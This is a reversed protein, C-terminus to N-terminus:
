LKLSSEEKKAIQCSCVGKSSTSFNGKNLSNSNSKSGSKCGCDSKGCGCSNQTSFMAVIKRLGLYCPIAIVAIILGIILNDM